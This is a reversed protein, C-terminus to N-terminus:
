LAIQQKNECFILGMSKRKYRIVALMYLAAVACVCVCVGKTKIIGRHIGGVVPLWSKM